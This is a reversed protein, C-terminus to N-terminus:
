GAVACLIEFASLLLPGPIPYSSIPAAKFCQPGHQQLLLSTNLWQNGVVPWLNQVCIYDSTTFM